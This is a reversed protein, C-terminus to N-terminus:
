FGRLWWRAWCLVYGVAEGKWRTIPAACGRARQLRRRLDLPKVRTDEYRPPGGFATDELKEFGNVPSRISVSTSVCGGQGFLIALVVAHPFRVKAGYVLGNRAGKLTAFIPHYAPNALLRQVADM